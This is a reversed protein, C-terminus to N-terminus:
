SYYGTVDVIFQTSGTFGAFVKVERAANVGVTGGNALDQGTSSWNIASAGFTVDDGPTIALFGFGSTGTITLNYGIARASAPVVDLTTVAGTDTNHADKVPITRSANAVLPGGAGTWRSDYARFPTLPHFLLGPPIYQYVVSVFANDITSSLLDAAYQIGPEVLLDIGTLSTQVVQNTGAPSTIDNAVTVDGTTADHRLLRWAQTGALGRWGYYDIRVIRGGVPVDLPCLVVGGAKWVSNSAVNFIWTLESTSAGGAYGVADRYTKTAMTAGAVAPPAVEPFSEAFRATSGGLVPDDAASANGAALAHDAGLALAGFSAASAGLLARRSFDSNASM